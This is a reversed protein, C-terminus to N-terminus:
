FHGLQVRDEPCPSWIYIDYMYFIGNEPCPPCMELRAREPCRASSTTACCRSSRSCCPSCRWSKCTWWGETGLTFLDVDGSKSASFTEFDARQHKSLRLVRLREPQCCCPKGEGTAGVERRRVEGPASVNHCKTVSHCRSMTVNDPSRVLDLGSMPVIQEKFKWGVLWTLLSKLALRSKFIRLLPLM